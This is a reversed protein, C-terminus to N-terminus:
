FIYIKYYIKTKKLIWVFFIEHVMQYYSFVVCVKGREVRQNFLNLKPSQYKVIAVLTYFFLNCLVKKYQWFYILHQLDSRIKSQKNWTKDRIHSGCVSLFVIIGSFLQVVSNRIHYTYIQKIQKDLTVLHQM